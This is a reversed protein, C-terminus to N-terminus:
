LTPPAFKRLSRFSDQSPSPPVTRGYGVRWGAPRSENWQVSAASNSVLLFLSPKRANPTLGTSAQAPVSLTGGPTAAPSPGPSMAAFDFFGGSGVHQGASAGTARTGRQGMCEGRCRGRRQRQKEQWGNFSHKTASIFSQAIGVVIHAWSLSRGLKAKHVGERDDCM